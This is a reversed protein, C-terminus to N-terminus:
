RDSGVHGHSRISDPATPDSLQSNAAQTDLYAGVAAQNVTFHGTMDDAAAARFDDARATAAGGLLATATLAAFIFNRM